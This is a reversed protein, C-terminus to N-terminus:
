SLGAAYGVEHLLTRGLGAAHQSGLEELLTVAIRRLAYSFPAHPQLMVVPGRQNVCAGVVPDDPLWGIPRPACGVFRKCVRVIRDSTEEAQEEDLARNVLLLPRADPQRGMLVKLFAYADTM